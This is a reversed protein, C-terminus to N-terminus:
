TATRQHGSGPLSTAGWLGSVMALFFPLRYVFQWLGLNGIESLLTLTRRDIPHGPPLLMGLAFAPIWAAIFVAASRMFSRGLQTTSLSKSIGIQLLLCLLMGTWVFILDIALNLSFACVTSWPWDIRWIMGLARSHNEMNSILLRWAPALMCWLVAFVLLVRRNLIERWCRIAVAAFVQRWYWAATRGDRFEELLDGALADNSDGPAWHELIWTALTPPATRNM